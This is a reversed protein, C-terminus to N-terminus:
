WSLCALICILSLQFWVNILSAFEGAVLRRISSRCHQPPSLIYCSVRSFAHGLRSLQPISSSRFQISSHSRIWLFQSLAHNLSNINEYTYHLRTPGNSIKSPFLILRLGVKLFVVARVTRAWVLKKLIRDLLKKHEGRTIPCAGGFLLGM